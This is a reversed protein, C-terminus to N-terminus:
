EFERKLLWSFLTQPNKGKRAIDALELFRTPGITRLIKGYWQEFQPNHFEVSKITRRIDLVSYKTSFALANSTAALVPRDAIHHLNQSLPELAM